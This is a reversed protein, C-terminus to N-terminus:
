WSKGMVECELQLLQKEEDSFSESYATMSFPISNLKVLGSAKPRTACNDSAISSTSGGSPKLGELLASKGKTKNQSGSFMMELTRQRKVPAPTITSSNEAQPDDDPRERKSPSKSTPDIDELYVTPQSDTMEVRLKRNTWQQLHIKRTLKSSIGIAELFLKARTLDHSVYYRHVGAAKGGV